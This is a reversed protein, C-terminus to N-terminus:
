FEPIFSLLIFVANYSGHLLMSWLLGFRVRIYGFYAGVLIQPLVLLPALLLVNTTLEFNTIHIFGFLLAFAYFAIRFSRTKKFATIPARFMTEEIIPVLLAGLLFVQISTMDKFLIEAKHDEMHIWELTDFLAYIPSIAIGTLICILLLQFFIKVRYTLSTNDDKQLVPNKLYGILNEFTEKM